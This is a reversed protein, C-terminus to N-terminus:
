RDAALGGKKNSETGVLPLRALRCGNNTKVKREYSPKTKQRIQSRGEAGVLPLGPNPKTLWLIQKPKM